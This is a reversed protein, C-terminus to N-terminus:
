AIITCREPWGVSRSSAHANLPTLPRHSRLFHWLTSSTGNANWRHVVIQVPCYCGNTFCMAQKTVFLIVVRLFPNPHFCNLLISFIAVPVFLSTCYAKGTNTLEFANGRKHPLKPWVIKHFAMILGHFVCLMHVVDEWCKDLIKVHALAGHSSPDDDTLVLQIREIATKGYLYLFFTEYIKLFIWGQGCPMVTANVIFTQGTAGKVVAFFMERKQSNMNAAVDLFLVEPNM